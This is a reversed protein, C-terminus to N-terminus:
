FTLSVILIQFILKKCSEILIFKESLINLDVIIVIKKFALYESLM